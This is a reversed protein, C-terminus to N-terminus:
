LIITIDHCLMPLWLSCCADSAACFVFLEEDEVGGAVEVGIGAVVLDPFFARALSAECVSGTESSM